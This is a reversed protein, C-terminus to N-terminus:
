PASPSDTCRRGPGCRPPPAAPPAPRAAGAASDWGGGPCRACRRCGPRWTGPAPRAAADLDAGAGLHGVDQGVLPATSRRPSSGLALHQGRGVDDDGRAALAGVPQRLQGAIQLEVQADVGHVNAHPDLQRGVDQRRQGVQEVLGLEDVKRRGKVVPHAGKADAGIALDDGLPGAVHHRDVAVGIGVLPGFVGVKGHQDALVKGLGELSGM